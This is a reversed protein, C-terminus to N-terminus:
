LQRQPAEFEGEADAERITNHFHGLLKKDEDMDNLSFVGHTQNRNAM